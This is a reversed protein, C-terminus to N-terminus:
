THHATIDVSGTTTTATVDLRRFGSTGYNPTEAHFNPSPSLVSFGVANTNVTGITTSAKIDCEINTVNLNLSVRGTTTALRVFANRTQFSSQITGDVQGTTTTAVLSQFRATSAISVSVQGTTTTLIMSEINSAAAPAQVFISGTSTTLQFSSRLNENVTIDVAATTSTANLTLGGDRLARTVNVTPEYFISYYKTFVIKYLQSQNNTFSVRITGTSVTCYLTITQATPAQATALEYTETKAYGVFGYPISAVLALAIVGIIFVIFAPFVPRFGLLSAVIIILGAIVLAAPLAFPFAVGTIALIGTAVLLIGGVVYWFVQRSSRFMGQMRVKGFESYKCIASFLSKALLV